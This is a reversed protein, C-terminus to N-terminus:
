WNTDAGEYASTYAVYGAIDMAEEDLTDETFAKDIAARLGTFGEALMPHAALTEIDEWEMM